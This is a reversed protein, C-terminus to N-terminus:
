RSSHAPCVPLMEYIGDSGAGLFLTQTRDVMYPRKQGIEIYRYGAVTAEGSSVDSDGTLMKFTTTKGAGNVGLLGFCQCSFFSLDSRKLVCAASICKHFVVEYFIQKAEHISFRGQIYPHM